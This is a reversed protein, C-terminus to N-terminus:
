AIEKIYSFAIPQLINGLPHFGSAKEHVSAALSDGEFLNFKFHPEEEAGYVTLWCKGDVTTEFKRLGFYAKDLEIKFASRDHAAANTGKLSHLSASYSYSHATLDRSFSLSLLADGVSTMVSINCENNSDCDIDVDSNSDCDIDVDSNSDCDIDVDSNSDCDFNVDSDM